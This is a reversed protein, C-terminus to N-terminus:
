WGLEQKAMHSLYGLQEGEGIYIVINEDDEEDDVDVDEEEEEEFEDEEESLDVAVVSGISYEFPWNPQTALKVEADPYDDLFDQLERVLDELRM